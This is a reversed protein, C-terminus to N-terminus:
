CGGVSNHKEVDALQALSRARYTRLNTAEINENLRAAERKRREDPAAPAANARKTGAKPSSGASAALIKRV